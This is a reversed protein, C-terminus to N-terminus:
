AKKAEKAIKQLNRWVASAFKVAKEAQKVADKESAIWALALIQDSGANIEEDKFLAAKKSAARRSIGFKKFVESVRQKRIGSAVLKASLQKVQVAFKAKGLKDTGCVERLSKIGERVADYLKAIQDSVSLFGVLNKALTNTIEQIDGKPSANTKTNMKKLTSLPNQREVPIDLIAADSAQGFGSLPRWRPPYHYYAFRGVWGGGTPYPSPSPNRELTIYYVGKRFFKESFCRPPHPPHPHIAFLTEDVGKLQQNETLKNCLPPHPPHTKINLIFIINIYMYTNGALARKAGSEGGVTSCNKKAWRM